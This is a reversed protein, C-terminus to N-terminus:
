DCFSEVFPPSPSKLLAKSSQLPLAPLLIASVDTSLERGAVISGTSETRVKGSGVPLM